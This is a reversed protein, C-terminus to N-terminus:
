WRGDGRTAVGLYARLPGYATPVRADLDARAGARLAAASRRGGDPAAPAIPASTRRGAAAEARVAGGLRVCAATGPLALEGAGCASAAEASALLALAALANWIRAGM